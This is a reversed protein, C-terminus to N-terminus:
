SDGDSRLPAFGAYRWDRLALVATYGHRDPFPLGGDERNLQDFERALRELRRRFEANSADSLMGNLVILSHEEREFNAAFFDKQITKLFRQQIPGGPLWGFNPAVLLKIRNDAQLEILRLRDLRALMRVLQHQDFVYFSLIDEFRWRNLVCVTVVLLALDDAIEREQAVTLRQLRDHRQEMLQVLDGFDLACLACIRDIEAITFEERSFKRKVSSESLSLARAVQAYNIRAAKLAAKLAEVLASVQAM